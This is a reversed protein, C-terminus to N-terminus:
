SAPFHKLLDRLHSEYHKWKGISSKYIPQRAEWISPSHIEKSGFRFDEPAKAPDLGVFNLLVARTGEPDAIMEEYRVAHIPIPLVARFHAATKEFAKYANAIADLDSSYPAIGAGFNQQFISWCTDIPDRECLVIRANPFAAAILGLALLNAPTKEVMKEVPGAVAVVPALYNQAMEEVQKRTYGKVRECLDVLKLAGDRRSIAEFPGREGTGIAEPHSAIMQEVLTTGTRPMGVVFVPQSTENGWGVREEFFSKSFTVEVKNAAAELEVHNSSEISARIENAAKYAGIAEDYQGASDLLKAASYQVDSVDAPKLKGTKLHAYFADLSRDEDVKSRKGVAALHHLNLDNHSKDLAPGIIAQAEDFKGALQLNRALIIVIGLDKPQMKHLKHFASILADTDGKKKALEGILLQLSPEKENLQQAKLAMEFAENIQGTFNLARALNVLAPFSDAKLEVAQRLTEVAEESRGASQLLAGANSLALLHRPSVAVTDQYGKLAAQLDGAKQCIMAHAFLVRNDKPHDEVLKSSRKRAEDLKGQQFLATIANMKRQM